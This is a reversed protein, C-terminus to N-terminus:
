AHVTLCDMCLRDILMIGGCSPCPEKATYTRDWEEWSKGIAESTARSQRNHEDNRLEENKRQEKTMIKVKMTTFRISGVM